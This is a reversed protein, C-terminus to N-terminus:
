KNIKTNHEVRVVTPRSKGWGSCRCTRHRVVVAVRSELARSRLFCKINTYVIVFYRVSLLSKSFEALNFQKGQSSNHSSFCM